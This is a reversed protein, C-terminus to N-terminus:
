TTSAAERRKSRRVDALQKIPEHRPRKALKRFRGDNALKEFAEYLEGHGRETKMLAEVFGAVLNWEEVYEWGWWKAYM